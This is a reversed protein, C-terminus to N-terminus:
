RRRLGRYRLGRRPPPPLHSKIIMEAYRLDNRTIVSPPRAPVFTGTLRNFYGDQHPKSYLKNNWTTITYQITRKGVLRLNVSVMQNRQMAGTRVLPAFPRAAGIRQKWRITAPSLATWASGGHLHHGGIDYATQMRTRLGQRLNEVMRTLVVKTLMSVNSGTVLLAKRTAKARGLSM